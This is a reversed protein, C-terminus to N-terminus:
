KGRECARYVVDPLRRGGWVPAKWTIPTGAGYRAASIDDPVTQEHPEVDPTIIPPLARKDIVVALETGYSPEPAMLTPEPTYSVMGTRLTLSALEHESGDFGRVTLVRDVGDSVKDIEVYAVNLDNSEVSVRGDGTTCGLPAVLMLLHIRRLM